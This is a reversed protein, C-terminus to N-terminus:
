RNHRLNFAALRHNLCKKSDFEGPDTFLKKKRFEKQQKRIDLLMELVALVLGVIILLSIIVIVFIGVKEM